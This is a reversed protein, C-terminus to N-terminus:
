NNVTIKPVDNNTVDSPNIMAERKFITLPLLFFSSYCQFSGSKFTFFSSFHIYSACKEVEDEKQGSSPAPKGHKMDDLATYKETATHRVFFLNLEKKRGKSKGTGEEGPPTSFSNDQARGESLM